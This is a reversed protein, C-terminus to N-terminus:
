MFAIDSADYKFKQRENTRKLGVNAGICVTSISNFDYLSDFSCNHYKEFTVM